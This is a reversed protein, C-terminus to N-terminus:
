FSTVICKDRETLIFTRNQASVVLSGRDLGICDHKGFAFHFPM